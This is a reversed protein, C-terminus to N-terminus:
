VGAFPFGDDNTVYPEDPLRPTSFHVGDDHSRKAQHFHILSLAVGAAGVQYGVEAKLRGVDRLAYSETYWRRGLKDSWSRILLDDAQASAAQFWLEEGTELWLATFAELVAAGGCCQSLLWYNDQALRGPVGSRILGRGFRRAWGITDAPDDSIRAVATYIRIYGSSGSCLGFRAHGSENLNRSIASDGVVIAKTKVTDLARLAAQKFDDRGTALALNSLALAIGDGGELFGDIMAKDPFSAYRESMDHLHMYPWHSGDDDRIEKALLDEGARVATDTYRQEGLAKGIALLANLIGADGWLPSLGTWGEGPRYREALADAINVALPRWREYRAAAEAVVAAIGALGGCYGTDPDVSIFEHDPETLISWHAELYSLAKNLRDLDGDEALESNLKALQFWAVGAAGTYLSLPGYNAGWEEHEPWTVFSGDEKWSRDVYQQAEAVAQEITPLESGPFPKGDYTPRLNAITLAPESHQPENHQQETM